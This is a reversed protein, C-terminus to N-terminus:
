VGYAYFSLIFRSVSFKGVAVGPEFNLNATLWASPLLSVEEMLQRGGVHASGHWRWWVFLPRAVASIWSVPIRPAVTNLGLM